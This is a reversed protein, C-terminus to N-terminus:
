VVGAPLVALKQAMVRWDGTMPFFESATLALWAGNTDRIVSYQSIAALSFIRQTRLDQAGFVSMRELAASPEIFVTVAGQSTYSTDTLNYQGNINQVRGKPTYLTASTAPFLGSGSPLGDPMNGPALLTRYAYVLLARTEGVDDYSSRSVTYSRGHWTLLNRADPPVVKTAPAFDSQTLNFVHPDAAGAYVQLGEALIAEIGAERASVRSAICDYSQGLYLITSGFNERNFTSFGTVGMGRINPASQRM